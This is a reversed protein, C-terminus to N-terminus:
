SKTLQLKKGGSTGPPNKPLPQKQPYGYPLPCSNGSFPTAPYGYLFPSYEYNPAIANPPYPSHTHPMGGGYHQYAPNRFHPMQMTKRPIQTSHSSKQVGSRDTVHTPCTHTIKEFLYPGVIAGAGVVLFIGMM